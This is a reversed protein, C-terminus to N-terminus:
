WLLMKWLHAGGDDWHVRFLGNPLMGLLAVHALALANALLQVGVQGTDRHHIIWEQQAPYFHWGSSLAHMPPISSTTTVALGIGALVVPWREAYCNRATPSFRRGDADFYQMEDSIHSSPCRPRISFLELDNEM